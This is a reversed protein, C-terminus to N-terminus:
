HPLDGNGSLGLDYRQWNMPNTNIHQGVDGPVIWAVLVSLQQCVVPRHDQALPHFFGGMEASTQPPKINPPKMIPVVLKGRQKKPVIAM